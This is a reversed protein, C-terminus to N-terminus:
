KLIWWLWLGYSNSVFICRWTSGRFLDTSSKMISQDVVTAKNVWNTISDTAIWLKSSHRARPKLLGVRNHEEQSSIWLNSMWSLCIIEPLQLFQQVSSPLVSSDLSDFYGLAMRSTQPHRKPAYGCTCAKILLSRTLLYDFHLKECFHLQFQRVIACSVSNLLLNM